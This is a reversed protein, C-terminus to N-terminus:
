GASGDHEEDVVLGVLFERLLVESGFGPGLALGDTWRGELVIAVFLGLPRQLALLADFVPHGERGDGVSLRLQFSLSLM